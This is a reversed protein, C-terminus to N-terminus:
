KLISVSSYFKIFAQANYVKKNPCDSTILLAAKGQQKSPNHEYSNPHSYDFDRIVLTLQIASKEHAM